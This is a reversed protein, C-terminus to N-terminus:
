TEVQITYAIAAIFEMPSAAGASVSHTQWYTENRYHLCIGNDWSLKSDQLSNTINDVIWRVQRSPRFLKLIQLALDPNFGFPNMGSCEIQPSQTFDLTHLSAAIGLGQLEKLLYETDFILELPVSNNASPLLPDDSWQIGDMIFHNPIQVKRDQQAARAISTAHFVLQNSLGNCINYRHVDDDARAILQLLSLLLYSCRYVEKLTGPAQFLQWNAM